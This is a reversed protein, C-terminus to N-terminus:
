KGAVPVRRRVEDFFNLLFTLHIPGAQPTRINSAPGPFVVFSKGDSSLDMNPSFITSLIQQNSWIRPRGADFSMRHVTYETAMIRNDQSEYFLERGNRSWVPLTGAGTSIQWIGGPGPFPRVYVQTAGAESSQYALWHGDPSFAPFLEDAATTLFPEPQGPNPHDPDSLNLPLTWIDFGTELTRQVFALRQGDPSFSTPWLVNKSELLPKAQGARDARMWWIGGGAPSQSSFVIYKGDPTWVPYRHAQGTFTLRTLGDRQWDYLWLDNPAAPVGSLALLKGDPSLRPTLYSGPTALLPEITGAANLWAVPYQSATTHGSTFFFTGTQSFGFRGAGSTISGAV